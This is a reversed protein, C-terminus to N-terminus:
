MQVGYIQVTVSVLVTNVRMESNSRTSNAIINRFMLHHM